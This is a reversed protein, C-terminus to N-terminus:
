KQVFYVIAEKVKTTVVSHLGVKLVKRTSKRIKTIQLLIYFTLPSNFNGLGRMKRVLLAVLVRARGKMKLKACNPLAASDLELLKQVYKMNAWLETNM